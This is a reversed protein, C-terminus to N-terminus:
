KSKAGFLLKLALKPQLNAQSLIAASGQELIKLRVLKASEEAIDAETIRSIAGSIAESATRVTCISTQLRTEFAGIQGLQKDLNALTHSFLSIAQKAGAISSLDFRLLSSVGDRTNASRINIEGPGSGYHNSGASILDQVGDNNFDAFTVAFSGKDETQYQVGESELKGDGLGLRVTVYGKDSDDRGATVVDLIGDGNIDSVALDQSDKAETLYQQSTSSFTGNGIGLRVTLYGDSGDSGASLIDLNGDSNLDALTVASSLLPESNYSTTSGAFTGNGTGMRVWVKGM